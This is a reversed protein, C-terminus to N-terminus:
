KVRRIEAPVDNDYRVLYTANACELTWAARDPASIAPDRIAQKPQDCAYGQSRVTAAVVDKATEDAVRPAQAFAGDASLAVIVWLSVIALKNM